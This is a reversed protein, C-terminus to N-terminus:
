TTKATTTAHPGEAGDTTACVSVTYTTTSALGTLRYLRLAPDVVTTLYEGNLYINYGGPDGTAGTWNVTLASAAIASTTVPNVAGLGAAAPVTGTGADLPAFPLQTQCVALSASTEDIRWDNGWPCQDVSFFDVHRLRPFLQNTFMGTLWTAKSQSPDSPDVDVTGIEGITVSATPHLATVRTYAPEMRDAFSGFTGYHTENYTDFGIEDVYASGPYLNEITNGANNSDAGNACYFFSVNTAGNAVKCRNYVYRWASIWQSRSSVLVGNGVKTPGSGDNMEWWMRLIVKGPFSKCEQFFADLSADNAGALIAAFTPGSSLVDWAIALDHGTQACWAAEATPWNSSGSVGMVQYTVYRKLTAGVTSELTAHAATGGTTAYAGFSCRDVLDGTSTLGNGSNAGRVVFTISNSVTSQGAANVATVTARHQGPALGRAIFSFTNADVTTV